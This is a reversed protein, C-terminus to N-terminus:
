FSLRLAFQIRRSAYAETFEGFRANVQKGQADFRPTTDLASFQTHNFANYFEGRFQLKAREGPLPFYKFVSIDWNNRGPGRIVDRPANGVSGVAPARFAETNFNRSFTRESKPLIPNAVMVVRAGDTPSGTTDVANVFSLGIGSPAGSYFTAIGSVQWGDLAQRTLANNWLRSARPVDWIWNVKVVHTRDFGAKGYNWIRPDILSSVTAQNTDQYDMAKSWTWAGGFQLGQAFRRNVAVQLSHYSSNSGYDYFVIDNYGVYPRLFAAPLPKNGSTADANSPLFNSGFPIANLNRGQLLHRGFTGAYSADVVTGFGVNQQVGFSTNLVRAMPWDRTFGTSKSPFNVGSTNTFTDINGYYIIPDLRMPPNSWTNFQRPGMERAEYFVGFGGRLATKGKGFPDYAFGLRPVAKLGSNDRMGKPYSTDALLSVTGNYPDGSGPAIAGIMVAPLIEGTRPHRGVRKNGSMVPQILVVAQKADWRDPVFGAEERRYAYYPQAWTFRVGFDLTLKRGVKWTDQAFWELVTSRAQVPPRTTSESYNSFNGLLTNAYPHNADLPNNVDRGFDFNGTFNGDAGKYDRSREAWLGLKLTHAGATRTLLANWTFLQDVGVIPFRQDYTISPANTIGGFKAQPLLGLPNFEAHFQPIRLGTATRSVRDVLEQQLNAGEVYRMYGSSLELVATPGLLVTGSLVASKNTNQRTENLWGWNTSGAGANAGSTQEWWGNFRGYLMVKQSPNFDVRALENHKPADLSEQFQFNYRGASVANNSFNPRPLLGLFGQSLKNIRSAPVSNGPFAQGNLPDKVAYLAGNLDRSQSFDGRLEMETPMNLQRIPQPRQERFQEESFFFFLKDRNRNFRGPIYIPGGVNFGATTHRYKAEPVGNRNNFFENANFQEHRKYWWALGHFAQTGSKTVAQVSAGPKRGFEAQYASVLIKVERVSDMSTFDVTVAAAGLDMVPQGDISVNNGTQRLGQTNFTLTGGSGSSEGSSDSVIGPLLTVLGTFNRNVVTLNEIQNSSVLGSRESSATQVATGQATVSIVESVEGIDLRIEGVALRENPSVPLHVKEYKKFGAHEVRLTYNGPTIANFGFNGQADSAATRVAATEEHALTVTAGPVLRGTGDIVSGVVSSTVQQAPLALALLFASALLLKSSRM